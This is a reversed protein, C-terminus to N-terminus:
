APTTKSGPAALYEGIDGAAYTLQAIGATRCAAGAAPAAAVAKGDADSTIEAGRNVAGGFVVELGTGMQYVEVRDGLASAGLSDSVGIIADTAATAQIVTRDASFKVLRRPLIAAGATFPTAPLNRM